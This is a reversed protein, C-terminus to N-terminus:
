SHTGIITLTAIAFRTYKCIRIMGNWCVLHSYIDVVANNLFELIELLSISKCAKESGSWGVWRRWTSSRGFFRYKSLNLLSAIPLPTRLLCITSVSAKVAFLLSGFSVHLSVIDFNDEEILFPYTPIPSLSSAPHTRAHLPPPQKPKAEKPHRPHPIKTM